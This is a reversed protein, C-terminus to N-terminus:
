EKTWKNNVQRWINLPNAQQLEPPLLSDEWDQWAIPRVFRYVAGTGVSTFRSDSTAPFPGGHQMAACVEVGTPVGNLIIRGTKETLANLLDGYLPLEEKEAMVTATLQGDLSEIVQQLQAADDAVVLLSWPGFVEEGFKKNAIFAEASVKAITAVSQNVKEKDIATSKTVLEIGPEALIEGSLKEYNKWIGATLMTASPTIEIAGGLSTVFRDLGESKIALILGPNTCFQGAGLTISGAYKAALTEPEANLIAPLLIVPNISGMETFVPILSKREQALKILAMGGNYSGTFAVAKTQEHKVLQAGVNYGNDYLMSFVGAPMGTEIAAASIAAAVMASTGPHAPHAKVVVPCGAALASATDGGAVSFALPFNSAGFVVVPGIPSFMRRIDSRPIPTREPQATDIVADVWSGEEVLDAFLRLQGTTRGLEGTIRGVPLGSEAVARNILDDGIATLKDAITRLFTAKAAPSIIRYVKFAATAANLTKEILLTDAAHFDGTLQKGTSPDTANFVGGDVEVYNGAIVNNGNIM